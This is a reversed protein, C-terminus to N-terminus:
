TFPFMYYSNKRNKEWIAYYKHSKDTKARLLLKNRNTASCYEMKPIVLKNIEKHTSCKPQKYNKAM